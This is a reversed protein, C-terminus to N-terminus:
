PQRRKANPWRGHKTGSRDLIAQRIDMRRKWDAMLVALTPLVLRDSAHRFYSSASRENGLASHGRTLRIVRHGPLGSAAVRGGILQWQLSWPATPLQAGKTM